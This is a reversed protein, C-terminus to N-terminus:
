KRKDIKALARTAERRVWAKPHQLFREIHPRATVAKLKGLAMIAHGAVEEDALLDVLVDVARPNRMNGLAVAVMERARGHHKDTALEVLDDFVRDDAVEALANGAAWKIGLPQDFPANRFEAIFGIAVVRQTPVHHARRLDAIAARRELVGPGLDGSHKVAYRSPLVDVVDHRAIM